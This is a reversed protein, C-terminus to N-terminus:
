WFELDERRVVEYGARALEALVDDLYKSELRLVYGNIVTMEWRCLRSVVEAPLVGAMEKQLWPPYDGDCFGPVRSTDFREGPLPRELGEEDFVEEVIREYEGPPMAEGFEGWTRSHSIARHLADVEEARGPRAFVLDGNARSICWYLVGRPRAVARM